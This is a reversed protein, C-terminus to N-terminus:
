WLYTTIATALTWALSFVNDISVYLFSGLRKIFYHSLFGFVLWFAILLIIAYGLLFLEEFNLYIALCLSIILSTKTITSKIFISSKNIYYSDVLFSIPICAIILPIGIVGVKLIDLLGLRIGLCIIGLRLVFKLSFKIPSCNWLCGRNEATLTLPFLAYWNALFFSFISIFSFFIFIWSNLIESILKGFM